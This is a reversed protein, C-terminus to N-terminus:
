QNGSGALFTRWRSNVPPSPDPKGLGPDSGNRRQEAMEGKLRQVPALYDNLGAERVLRDIEQRAEERFRELQTRERALQARERSMELEAERVADTLEQNRDRLTNLERDLEQRDRELQRRFDNLEAEYDARDPDQQLREEHEALEEQLCRIRNDKEQLQKRLAAHEQKVRDDDELHAQIALLQENMELLQQEREELAQRLHENEETLARSEHQGVGQRSAFAQRFDDSLHSLHEHQELLIEAAQGMLQQHKRLNALLKEPELTREPAM